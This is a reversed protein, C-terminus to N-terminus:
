SKQNADFALKSSLTTLEPLIQQVTEQVAGSNKVSRLLRYTVRVVVMTTSLEFMGRSKQPLDPLLNLLVITAPIVHEPTFRDEYTELSGIVDQVRSLDISRLYADLATRDRFRSWAQEAEYFAQLSDGTVRELYLRLIDEHAVRREKLWRSEWDSGGYHSGGPLHWEAAPFLHKIM